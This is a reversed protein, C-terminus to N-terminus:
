GKKGLLYLALGSLVIGAGMLYIPLSFHLLMFSSVILGAWALVPVGAIRPSTFGRKAKSNSLAILSANVAVYALFVSLDTLQAITKIDSLLAFAAALILCLAISFHPTGRDGTRSLISPLSGGKSIGFLMRSGVILFVLVTNGTAFLAILSLVYANPGLASGVVLTLPADSGSLAEWGVSEIAAISVLIYLLTSVGLAIMLALPITRRSDKVEESLNVVNEFGIFAFFIVGVAALIGGLGADPLQLLDPTSPPPFLLWLAVVLLLGLTEIISAFNNFFASERIGILNLLGMAAILGLAVAKQEGGFLSVFYGAFGLSVAAAAIITGIALLWGVVFSLGEKRFAKKTYNYEAATKPFLSSLEAYSLGTFLAIIASILFAAWLMNGALGAGAGILAYIGAGLIVGIGYLTTSFLGLERKLAM